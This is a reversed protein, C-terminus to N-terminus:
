SWLADLADADTGTFASSERWFAPARVADQPIMAGFIFTLRREDPTELLGSWTFAPTTGVFPQCVRALADWPASDGGCAIRPLAGRGHNGIALVRAGDSSRIVATAEVTFRAFRPEPRGRLLNVVYRRRLQRRIARREASPTDIVRLIPQPHLALSDRAQDGGHGAPLAHPAFFRNARTEDTRGHLTGGVVQAAYLINLRNWGAWYYLGVPRTIVAELGTEERVERAAAQALTEGYDLRGGPLSWIGLDGRLSFLVQGGADTVACVTGLRLPSM